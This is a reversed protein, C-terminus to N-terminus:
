PLKQDERLMGDGPDPLPIAPPPARNLSPLIQKLMSGSQIIRALDVSSAGGFYLLLVLALILMLGQAFPLQHEPLLKFWLILGLFLMIVLSLLFAGGRRWGMSPEPLPDQLDVGLLKPDPETM